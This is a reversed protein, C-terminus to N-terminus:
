AIVNQHLNLPATHVLKTITTVKALAAIWTLRVYDFLVYDFRIEGDM